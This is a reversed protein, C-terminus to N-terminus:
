SRKQCKLQSKFLEQKAKIDEEIAEIVFDANLLADELKSFCSVEGKQISM